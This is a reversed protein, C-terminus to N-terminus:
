MSENNELSSIFGSDDIMPVRPGSEELISYPVAWVNLPDMWFNNVMVGHKIKTNMRRVSRDNLIIDFNNDGFTKQSLNSFLM